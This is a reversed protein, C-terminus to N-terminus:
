AGIAVLGSARAARALQVDHTALVLDKMGAERALELATALHIADLTGIVTPMASAARELIGETVALIEMSRFVKRAEGHLKEM